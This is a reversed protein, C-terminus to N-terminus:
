GYTRGANDEIIATLLVIAIQNLLKYKVKMNLDQKGDTSLIYYRKLYVKLVNNNIGSYAWSFLWILYVQMFTVFSCM